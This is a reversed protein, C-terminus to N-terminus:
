VAVPPARFVPEAKELILEPARVLEVRIEKQGKITEVVVHKGTHTVAGGNDRLIARAEYKGPKLPLFRAAMSPGDMANKLVPKVVEGTELFVLTPEVDEPDLDAGIPAGSMFIGVVVVRTNETVAPISTEDGMKM